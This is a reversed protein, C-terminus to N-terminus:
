TASVTGILQGTEGDANVGYNEFLSLAGVTNIYTVEGDTAIRISNFKLWGTAAAFGEIGVDVANDNELSCGEILCDTWAASMDINAASFDGHSVLGSITVHDAAAGTLFSVNGATDTGHNVCAICSFYDAAASLTFWTVTNKAADADDFLCNIFSVHAATVPIAVVLADVDNIFHVNEVSNNAATATLTSATATFTITPRDTGEGMGITRIGVKSLAIGAAAAITEVHGAMLIIEGGTSATSRSIAEAWTALPRGISLGDFSGDDAGLVSSVYFREQGLGSLKSELERASEEHGMGARLYGFAKTSLGM